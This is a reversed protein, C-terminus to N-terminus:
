LVDDLSNKGTVTLYFETVSTIYKHTTAPLLPPCSSAAQTFQEFWNQPSTTILETLIPGM